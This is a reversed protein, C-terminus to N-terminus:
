KSAEQYTCIHSDFEVVYKCKKMNGDICYWTEDSLEEKVGLSIQGSTPIGSNSTYSAFYGGAGNLYMQSLSAQGTKWALSRITGLSIQDAPTPM